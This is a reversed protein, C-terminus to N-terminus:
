ARFAPVFDHRLEEVPTAEGRRVQEMASALMQPTLKLRAFAAM